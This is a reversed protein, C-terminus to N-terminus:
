LATDCLQIEYIARKERRIEVTFCTYGGGDSRLDGNVKETEPFFQLPLLNKMVIKM